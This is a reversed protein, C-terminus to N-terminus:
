GPARTRQEEVALELAEFAVEPYLPLLESKIREVDDALTPGCRVGVPHTRETLVPGADIEEIMRHATVVVSRDGAELARRVPETGAYDPLRGRHLNIPAVRPWGLMTAPVAFRWSVSLLVDFPQYAELGALTRAEARTDVVHLPISLGRALEVYEAFEPRESRQPDESLPRRRHTYVACVERHRRDEALARLTALGAERAALLVLRM